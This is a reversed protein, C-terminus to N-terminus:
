NTILTTTAILADIKIQFNRYKGESSNDTNKAQLQVVDGANVTIGADTYSSYTTGGKLNETGVAVGNVYIRGYVSGAGSNKGMDYTTDITGDYHVQIAKVVEYGTTLGSTIKETNARGVIYTTGSVTVLPIFGFSLNGSGDTLLVTSSATGDNDPFRYDVGNIHVNGSTIAFNTSTAHTSSAQTAFISSFSFHQTLNLWSQKIKGTLDAWVDCSTGVCAQPTDTAHESNQVHPNNSNFQTSSASESATALEVIGSNTESSTAAGQAAISDIYAKDCLHDVDSCAGTTTAYSLLNEFTDEGNNQAKLLQIIPFDTIKVNAGRRHSFQLASVTTTGNAQSIGRQLSTVSTGSVTGCVTEANTNGEDLTFCTYGSVSGGGRISNATLTMSTASSTIPAQLSTEFVAVTSPLEAGIPLTDVKTVGFLLIIASLITIILAKKNM